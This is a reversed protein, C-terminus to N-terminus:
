SLEAKPREGVLALAQGIEDASGKLFRYTGADRATGPPDYTVGGVARLRGSGDDNKAPGVLQQLLFPGDPVPALRYDDLLVGAAQQAPLAAWPLSALDGHPSPYLTAKGDPSPLHEALKDWVLRRLARAHRDPDDVLDRRSPPPLNPNWDNIARLWAA